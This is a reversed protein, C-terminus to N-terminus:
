PVVGPEADLFAEVAAAARANDTFLIAQMGFAVAAEINPPHDDVFLCDEPRSRLRACVAAFSRPDPKNIGIEHSYVAEDVLDVLKKERERAGVFSNSLIGLRCRGRLSRLYDVLDDNCTGLYEDWLDAMFAELQRPDLALHAAVDAYVQAETITGIGGAAWVDACRRNIEGTPLGLRDEWRAAWGTAPTLELVGGIDFIVARTIM